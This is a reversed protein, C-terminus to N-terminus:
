GWFCGDRDEDIAEVLDEIRRSGPFPEYRHWKLDQRMWYLRWENASRVFKIKAVPTEIWEGPERWHTRREYLEIDHRQVRYRTSVQDAVAAPSRRKCLAGVTNEIRKLEIESLAM